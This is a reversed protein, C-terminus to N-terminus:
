RGNTSPMSAENLLRGPPFAVGQDRLLERAAKGRVAGAMAKGPAFPDAPTVGGSLFDPAVKYVRTYLAGDDERDDVVAQASATAIGFSGAILPAILAFALCGLVFLAGLKKRVGRAEMLAVLRVKLRKAPRSYAIAM